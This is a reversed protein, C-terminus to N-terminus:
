DASSEAPFGVTQAFVIQQEDALELAAALPERDISARVVTALGASACFLYANQSLFAADAGMYLSRDEPAAGKMKTVDAIFVLNLPADSVFGQTGTLARLDGEAVAALVNAEADYRYAGAPTVVYLTVEQWNRASPATRKGSAPRNIGATAWLLSSLMQRPLAADSFSRSSQRDALVQMLPRGGDTEPVPLQIDELDQGAAGAVFGLSLVLLLSCHMKM